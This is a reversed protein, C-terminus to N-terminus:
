GRLHLGLPKLARGKNPKQKRTNKKEGPINFYHAFANSTSVQM